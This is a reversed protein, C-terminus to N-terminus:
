FVIMSAIFFLFFLDFAFVFPLSSFLLPFLLPVCPSLLHVHISVIFSSKGNITCIRQQFLVSFLFKKKQICTNAFDIFTSTLWISYIFQAYQVNHKQVIEM